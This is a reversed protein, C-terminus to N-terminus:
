PTLADLASSLLGFTEAQATCDTIWDRGSGNGDPSGREVCGDTRILAKRLKDTAEALDGAQIATVAQSLFNLLAGQNGDTTVQGPVLAAVFDSSSVIQSESFDEATAATIQVADPAGAGIVDSVVLNVQYTGELDPVFSTSVSNTGALISSSGAPAATITWAYTLSDFEPDSSASGDLNVTTGIIVLQDNGAAATPALNDASVFVEDPASSLGGEDTVVLEVAFTDALDAVFSPTSTNAGIISANSGAPLSSFSWSYLLNATDTNDDFSGNGDLFVTDGARIAQDDGAAATPPLNAAIPAVLTRFRFDDGPNYTGWTSGGDSSYFARGGAYASSNTCYMILRRNGTFVPPLQWAIAIQEGDTVTIGLDSVDFRTIGNPDTPFDQLDDLPITKSGLIVPGPSGSSVNRIQLDPDGTLYDFHRQVSFDIATLTGSVGVTVTQAHADSGAGLTTNCTQPGDNAQDVVAQSNAKAAGLLAICTLLLFANTRTPKKSMIGGGNTAYPIPPGAM